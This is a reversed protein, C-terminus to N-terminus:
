FDGFKFGKSPQDMKDLESMKYPTGKCHEPREGFIVLNACEDNRVVIPDKFWQQWISIMMLVTIPIVLIARIWWIPIFVSAVIPTFFGVSLWALLKVEDKTFAAIRKEM